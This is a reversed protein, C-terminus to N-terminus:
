VVPLQTLTMLEVEYRVRVQLLSATTSSVDLDNSQFWIFWWQTVSPDLNYAGSDIFLDAKAEARSAGYLRLPEISHHFWGDAGCNTNPKSVSFSGQKAFPATRANYISSFSAINLAPVVTVTVNNGSNSGNWKLSISSKRVKYNQYLNASVLTSYGTPQLTAETAPGLFTFSPFASSGGPRFPLYPANLKVAGTTLSATAIAM